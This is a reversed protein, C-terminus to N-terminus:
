LFPTRNQDSILFGGLSESVSEQLLACCCGGRTVLVSDIVRHRPLSRLSCARPLFVGGTRTEEDERPCFSVRILEENLVVEFLRSYEHPPIRRRQTWFAVRRRDVRCGSSLFLFGTQFSKIPFRQASFRFVRCSLSM